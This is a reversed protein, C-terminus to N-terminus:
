RRKFTLQNSVDEVGPVNEVAEEALRKMQRDEIEGNLFVCADRVDVDIGSADVLSSRYLAECVDERIKEDSRVYGKPGKGKFGYGSLYHTPHHGHRLYIMGARDAESELSRDVFTRIDRGGSMKNEEERYLSFDDNPAFRSSAGLNRELNLRTSNDRHKGGM